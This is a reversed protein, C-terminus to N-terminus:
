ETATPFKNESCKYSRFVHGTDALALALTASMGSYNAVYAFALVVGIAQRTNLTESNQPQQFNIKLANTHDSFM